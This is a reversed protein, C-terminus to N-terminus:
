RDRITAGLERRLHEVVRAVIAEADDDTLTRSTDQLNLGLAISKKGNEIAPGRYIDFVVLDDLLPAALRRVRALVEALSTTESVILALDRRISPYKSIDRCEPVHSTFAAATEVEFLFCGYTLDLQGGIVPNLAGLWGVPMGNREIRACQGPHLAVNEGALFAFAALDGTLALLSEVDAKVDYFDIPRKPVGWQEPLAYGAALGAIVETEAGDSAYKRGAEFLRVRGAQRRQNAILAAVLGPWLSLRMVSHESSIPNRIALGAIGPHLTGQLVPDTFSYTVAEQYGRDVMLTAVRDPSVRRETIPRVHARAPEAIEPIRDFGYLRGVEEVFDEEINLDFRWPPPTVSASTGALQVACGISELFQAMHPPEIEIGLIRAVRGPRVIVASRESPAAAESRSVVTPGARGGALDLILQTAREAAIQQGSPDVGREFRQSADTILGFRRGRGAVAAPDFYAVELLLDRTTESIGSAEGGMVGALGLARSEDAIVLVDDDLGVDRGDLLRLTEGAQARRVVISRDLRELDYAHMPQGLELMVYNTVDVIANIPRIGARRLRERLWLPSRATSDVGRIVRAVFVPCDRGADLRVPFAENSQAPVEDLEPPHLRAGSVAGVERAVGRVSMCDGRNPTLNIALIWDDLRLATAIDLGTELQGPLELLGGSDDGLGLERASCLMGNSEIGRVSARGIERGDPLSAGPLALPVKIGARVNPAGCVVEANESGGADVRCLTLRDANPHPRTALVEAVVVRDLPPAAAEVGEVELGAMTLAHALADVDDGVDVWERLWEVSVKM